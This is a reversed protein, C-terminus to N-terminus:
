NWTPKLTATFIANVQKLLDLQKAPAVVEIVALCKASTTVTLLLFEPQSLLAAEGAILQQTAPLEGVKIEEPKGAKVSKYGKMMSQFQASKWGEAGALNWSSAKSPFRLHLRIGESLWGSIKSQEAQPSSFMAIVHRTGGNEDNVFETREARWTRPVMAAFLGAPDSHATFNAKVFETFKAKQTEAERKAVAEAVKSMPAWRGDSNEIWARAYNIPVAFFLSNGEKWLFTNVGIVQGRRNFLPGGSSGPSIPATHQIVKYGGQWDRVQSVIGNSVSNSFGKPAGMAVLEEGLELRDSNGMPVVPLDVGQVKLIALDRVQDFEIVGLVDLKEGNSREVKAFHAKDIVHYNTVVIGKPSVVFGSGQGAGKGAQDYTYITVLGPLARQVIEKPALDAPQGQANLAPLLTYPLLACILSSRRM